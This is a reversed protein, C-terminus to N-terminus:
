KKRRKNIRKQVAVAQSQTLWYGNRQRFRDNDHEWYYIWGYKYRERAEFKWGHALLFEADERTKKAIKPDEFPYAQSM